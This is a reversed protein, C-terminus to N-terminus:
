KVQDFNLEVPTMRGFISVMVKLREADADIEEVMGVFGSFPGEAIEVERGVAFEVEKPAVIIEGKMRKIIRDVESQSLPIPERNGGLFRLLRPSSLIFQKAQDTLDAEILVYGPFLQQEESEVSSFFQKLKASPISVQVILDQLVEREVRRMIDDKIQEEFGSFVQAVYWRKM